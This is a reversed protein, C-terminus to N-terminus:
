TPPKRKAKVDGAGAQKGRASGPRGSDLSGEAGGAAAVAKVGRAASGYFYGLPGPPLYVSHTNIASM